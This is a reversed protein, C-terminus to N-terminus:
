CVVRFRGFETESVDLTRVANTRNYEPGLTSRLHYSVNSKVHAISVLILNHSESYVAQYLLFLSALAGMGRIKQTADGPPVKCHVRHNESLRM